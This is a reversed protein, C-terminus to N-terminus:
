VAGRTLARVRARRGARGWSRGGNQRSCSTRAVAVWRLCQFGGDGITLSSCLRLADPHPTMVDVSATAPTGPKLRYLVQMCGVRRGGGRALVISCAPASFFYAPTLARVAGTTPQHFAQFPHAGAHLLPLPFFPRSDFPAPGFRCCMSLGSRTGDTANASAGQGGGGGWPVSGRWM